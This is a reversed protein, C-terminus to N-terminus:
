WPFFIIVHVKCFFRERQLITRLQTIKNNGKHIYSIYHWPYGWGRSTIILTLSYRLTLWIHVIWLFQLYVNSFVSPALLFSCDLSVPL